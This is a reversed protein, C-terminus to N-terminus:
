RRVFRYLGGGIKKGDDFLEIEAQDGVFTIKIGHQKGNRWSEQIMLERDGTWMIDSGHLHGAVFQREFTTPSNATRQIWTATLPSGHADVLRFVGAEDTMCRMGDAEDVLTWGATAATAGVTSAAAPPKDGGCGAFVVVCAAATCTLNRSM